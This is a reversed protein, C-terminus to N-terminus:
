FEFWSYPRLFRRQLKWNRSIEVQILEGVNIEGLNMQHQSSNKCGRLQDSATAGRIIVIASVAHKGIGFCM